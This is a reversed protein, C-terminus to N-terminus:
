ARRDADTAERVVEKAPKDERLGKFAGQRLLGDATWGRFEVECVLKPKAWRVDKEAGVPLPRGFTPKPAQLKEITERLSRSLQHSWGTGVRGAYVLKGSDYYGLALSGVFDSGATSPVYGLIVLEQAHVCKIKLWHEGRGPRYPLDKRKSVIGELGMRCAHKLMTAGDEESHESYRLPSGAPPRALITALLSKRDLFKVPTLDYGDLYLIDFLHYRLRDRRGSKLDAQLDSFRPIGREDESVIEGDLLANDVGLRDLAAAITPFRNTWNLAKRTLLGVNDGDIRAQIRYGDFKIEHVWQPGKPPKDALLALSPELFPPLRSLRAGEPMESARRSAAGAGRKRPSM